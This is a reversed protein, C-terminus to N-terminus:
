KGKKKATTPPPPPPPPVSDHKAAVDYTDIRWGGPGPILVLDGTREIRVRGAASVAVVAIDVTATVAVVTGDQAALATLAATHKEPVLNAGPTGLAPDEVLAARDPSGPGVRALAGATFDGDLGTPAAVLRLPLVLSHQIYDNLVASVATRVDAPFPQSPAHMSQVEAGTVTVNFAAPAATTTTTSAPGKAKGASGHSCAPLAAAALGLGLVLAATRVLVQGLYPRAADDGRIALTTM